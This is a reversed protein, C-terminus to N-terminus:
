KTNSNRLQKRLARLANKAASIDTFDTKQIKLLTARDAKLTADSSGVAAAFGPDISSTPEHARRATQRAIRLNRLAAAYAKRDGAVTQRADTLQARRDLQATKVAAVDAAIQEAPTPPVTANQSVEFDVGTAAQGSSLQVTQQASSVQAYGDPTEIGVAVTQTAGSLPVILSYAGNADTTASPEDSDHAGNGNSDLYVTVGALGTPTSQTVGNIADNLVHGSVTATSAMTGTILFNNGTYDQRSSVFVPRDAGDAPDLQTQGAQLSLRVYFQAAPSVSFSYNGDADTITAPEGADLQGNDNTDLYVIQGTVPTSATSTSDASYDVTGDITATTGQEQLFVLNDVNGTQSSTIIIGAGDAPSTQAWGTPVVERVTYNGAPLQAFDFVGGNESTFVPETAPDYVGNNNLDIYVTIGTIGSENADLQGNGNADNYVNGALNVASAPALFTGSLHFTFNDQNAVGNITPYITIPATALGPSVYANNGNENFQLQFSASAGAALTMSPTQMDPTAGLVSVLPYFTSLGALGQADPDMTFSIPQTLTNTVTLTKIAGPFAAYTSGFDFTGAAVPQEDITVSVASQINVDFAHLQMTPLFYGLQTDKVTNPQLDFYYSGDEAATFSDTGLYVEYEALRYGQGPGPDSPAVRADTAPASFGNAGEVLFNGNGFTTTDVAPGTFKVDVVAYAGTGDGPFQTTQPTISVSLTVSLLVRDELTEAWISRRQKRAAANRMMTGMFM